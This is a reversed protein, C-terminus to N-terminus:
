YLDVWLGVVKLLFELFAKQNSPKPRLDVQVNEHGLPVWLVVFCLAPTLYNWGINGRGIHTALRLNFVNVEVFSDGISNKKKKNKNAYIGGPLSSLLYFVSLSKCSRFDTSTM